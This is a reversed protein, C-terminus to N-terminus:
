RLHEKFVPARLTARTTSIKLLPYKRMKIAFSNNIKFISPCIFSFIKDVVINIEDKEGHFYKEFFDKTFNQKLEHFFLQKM